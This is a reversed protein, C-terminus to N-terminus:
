IIFRNVKPNIRAAVEYNITGLTKAIDSLGITLNGQEGVIVVEDGISLKSMSSVDIATINMSINGVIQAYKGNVMVSGCNSLGRDLGDFYGVPMLAIIMEKPAIFARGYGISEGKKIKKIQYIITKWSLVPKLNYENFFRNKLYQSPWMGYLGAGVRALNFVKPFCLTGSTNNSHFCNIKIGEKKLIRKVHKFKNIQSISYAQGKNSDADPFHTAIGELKIKHKKIFNVTESLEDFRVGQRGMGTDIMLHIKLDRVLRLEFIEKLQSLSIVTVTINKNIARRLENPLLYNFTLINGGFGLKRALLAEELGDVGIWSVDDEDIIDLIEEFGHGYANAKLVWVIQTDKGCLREFIEKNKLLADKSIELWTRCNGKLLM